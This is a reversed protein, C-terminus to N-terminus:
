RPSHAAPTFLALPVPLPRQGANAIRTSKTTFAVPELVTTGWRKFWADYCGPCTNELNLSGPGLGPSEWDLDPTPGPFSNQLSELHNEEHLWTPGVINWSPNYRCPLLVHSCSALKVGPKQSRLHPTFSPAQPRSTRRPQLFLTPPNAGPLGAPLRAHQSILARSSLVLLFRTHMIFRRPPNPPCSERNHTQTQHIRCSGSLENGSFPPPLRPGSRLFVTIQDSQVKWLDRQHGPHLHM